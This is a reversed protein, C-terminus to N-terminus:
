KKKESPRLDQELKPTHFDGFLDMQWAREWPWVIVSGPWPVWGLTGKKSEVYFPAGVPPDQKARKLAWAQHVPLAWGREVVRFSPGGPLRRYWEGPEPTELPPEGTLDAAPVFQDYEGM